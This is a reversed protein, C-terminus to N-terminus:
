INHLERMIEKNKGAHLVNLYFRYLVSILCSFLVSVTNQSATTGSLRRLGEWGLISLNLDSASPVTPWLEWVFLEFSFITLTWVHSWLLRVSHWFSSVSDSLHLAIHFASLPFFALAYRVHYMIILSFFWWWCLLFFSFLCMYYLVWSVILFCKRFIITTPYKM